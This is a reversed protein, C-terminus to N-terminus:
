IYVKVRVQCQSCWKKPKSGEEEKKIDEVAIKKDDNDEESIEKNEKTKKEDVARAVALVDQETFQGPGFAGAAARQVARKREEEAEKREVGVIDIDEEREVVEEELVEDQRKGAKRCM